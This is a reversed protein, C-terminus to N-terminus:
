PGDSERGLMHRMRVPRAANCRTRGFTLAPPSLCALKSQTQSAKRPGCGSPHVEYECARRRYWWVGAGVAVGMPLVTKAFTKVVGLCWVRTPRRVLAKADWARPYEEM